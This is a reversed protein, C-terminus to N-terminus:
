HGGGYAHWHVRQFPSTLLSIGSSFIAVYQVFDTYDILAIAKRIATTEFYEANEEGVGFDLVKSSTHSIGM